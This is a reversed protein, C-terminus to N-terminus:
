RLLEAGALQSALKRDFTYLPLAKESRAPAALFADTVSVKPHALYDNLVARWLARDLDLSAVGMIAEISQAVTARSLEMVRELVYVTEVLALEPVRVREGTSLLADAVATQAPADDLLWRLLVNTDITPM